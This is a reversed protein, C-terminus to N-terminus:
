PAGHITEMSKSLRKMSPHINLSVVTRYYVHVKVKHDCVVVVVVVVVDCLGCCIQRQGHIGRVADSAKCIFLIIKRRRM